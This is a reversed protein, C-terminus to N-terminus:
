ERSHKSERRELVEWLIEFNARLGRGTVRAPHGGEASKEIIESAADLPQLLERVHTRIARPSALESTGSRLITVVVHAYAMLSSGISILITVKKRADMDDCQVAFYMISWALTPMQLFLARLMPWVRYTSHMQDYDHIIEALASFTAFDLMNSLRTEEFLSRIVLM